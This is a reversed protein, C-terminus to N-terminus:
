SPKKNKVADIDKIYQATKEPEQRTCTACVYNKDKGLINPPFNWLSPFVHLTSAYCYGLRALIGAIALDEDGVLGITTKYELIKEVIKRKFIKLGGNYHQIQYPENAIIARTGADKDPTLGKIISPIDLWADDDTMILWEWDPQTLSWELFGMTRQPLFKYGDRAPLIVVDTRDKALEIGLADEGAVYYKYDCYAPLRSLWTSLQGEQRAWTKGCTTIGILITKTPVYPTFPTYHYIHDKEDYVFQELPALGDWSILLYEKEKFLSIRGRRPGDYCYARESQPNKPDELKITRTWKSYQCTVKIYHIKSDETKYVRRKTQHVKHLWDVVQSVTANAPPQGALFNRDAGIAGVPHYIFGEVQPTDSDIYGLRYLLACITMDGAPGAIGGDNGIECLKKVVHRRLCILTGHIYCHLPYTQPDHISLIDKDITLEKLIESINLWCDDDTLIVWEWNPQTITWRLFAIVKQRLFNSGHLCPIQIVNDANLSLLKGEIDQESIYYVYRCCEPLEQLWTDLQGQRRGWTKGCTLIGILVTAEHQQRKPQEYVYIGDKYNFKELQKKHWWRIVIYEEEKFALARGKMKGCTLASTSNIAHIDEFSVVM